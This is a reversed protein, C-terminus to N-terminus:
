RHRFRPGRKELFATAGERADLSSATALFLEREGDLGDALGADGVSRVARKIAQVAVAPLGALRDALVRAEALAEGETTVVNVIGLAHAREATILRGLLMLEAAATAGIRRPLRQTGGGGPILGLTVEPLGFRARPDAAIAHVADGLGHLTAEDMANVPPNDVTVTLVGASSEWRVPGSELRIM